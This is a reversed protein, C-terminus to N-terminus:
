GILLCLKTISLSQMVESCDVANGFQVLNMIQLPTLTGNDFFLIYGNRRLRTITRIGLM